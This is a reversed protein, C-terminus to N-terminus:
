AAVARQWAEELRRASVPRSTGLSQAFLSVRLEELLWRYDVVDAPWPWDPPQRRRWDDLRRAADLVAAQHEADKPSRQPLKDLRMAIGDLYRKLHPRWRPPTERLFYPFVLGDLQAAVDDAAPESVRAARGEVQPVIQRYRNLLDRAYGALREAAPVFDARGADVAREFAGRTRIPPELDFCEDAAACLLDDVLQEGTGIGHYSLVLARDGMVRKRVVDVQQPLQKLILRRVGRRHREAAAPGPPILALEVRGDADLLAPYLSLATGYEHVDVSDPLDPFDWQAVTRRAWGQTGGPRAAADAGDAARGPAIQAEAFRQQLATVERGAALVRGDRDLVEIRMRLEPPLAAEDFAVHARLDYRRVLEERLAAELAKHGRQRELSPLLEAVTDPLPVLARRVDKPLTRLMALVKAHLWGPVLWELADARLTGILPMPVRLTIGDSPSAPDYRYVLPLDHGATAISDPYEAADELTAPDRTAIDLVHMRLRDAEEPKAKRYWRRLGARDAIGPPLRASYFAEAAREGAYLDRSRRKAEWELLHNRLRRNHELFEFSEGVDDGALAERVFIRRAADRDVRGYDVRRDGSLTLGSLTVVERATVRGRRRDWQPELFERKVLHPAAQLVWDPRIQAATRLYVRATAVREAAVIWKPRRQVLGSGPFLASRAQHLGEYRGDEMKVAVFDIFAALVARHIADYGAEKAEARWGLGRVLERLQHHVDEWERFRTASLYRGECWQRVHREGRRRESRYASWLNLLTVFDSRPDNLEAHKQRAAGVDNPPQERPDVVSLAAALVLGERLAGGRHAALLLRSLRPDVPLRAMVDGDATLRREDDLAGLLHLLRYADNVAKSPPADIFPFGDVHGLRLGELRLIVGALNTRLIEPEMFAPRADLDQEGYLRICIGPALRGCRGARQDANAKAVPEIGLAQMRHRTSYRNVRALGSDVVFRIRPVTLSTEAINTALVVRPAVRPAFIKQQRAATLRAYLPLIEYGRPGARKLEREADRIWREGPLFVLTDRAAGGGYAGLDVEALENVAATVAQPLDVGRDPARYRLEVPYTRGEIRLIPADDFHAAFREPDITASTIVIKLDPRRKEIRKLYGLLFDINLSREHAEDIILTDYAELYRDRRIENLLIGDTMVKILSAPDTEDTFRVQYGVAGGVGVGLEEALRTAVARAALRRPQTHGITGFIGRGAELCLKPLQTTKGSGTDGCVIVVRHAALAALIEDRARAVPLEAPYELVVRTARRKEILREAGALREALKGRLM